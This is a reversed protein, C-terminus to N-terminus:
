RRGPAPPATPERAPGGARAHRRLRAIVLSGGLVPAWFALLRYLVAAALAEAVPIGQTALFGTLLAEFSGGGGPVGVFAMGSMAVVFGMVVVWPHPADHLAVFTAYLAASDCAVALYQLAVMTAFAGPRRGIVRTGAHYEEVFRRVPPEPVPRGLLVGLRRTAALAARTLRAEDRQLWYLGAAAAVLVLGGGLYGALPGVAVRGGVAVYALSAVVLTGAAATYSLTDILAVLSAQGSPVGRLHMAWTLLAYGSAGGTPVLQHMTTAALAIAWLFGLGARHGFLALPVRYVAARCLYVGAIAAAGAALWIPQAQPLLRAAAVVDGRHSWAVAGVAGFVILYLLWRIRSDRTV